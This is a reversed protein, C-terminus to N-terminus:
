SLQGEVKVDRRCNSIQEDKLAYFDYGEAFKFLIDNTTLSESPVGDVTVRNRRLYLLGLRAHLLAFCKTLKRRLNEPIVPLFNEMISNLVHSGPWLSVGVFGCDNLITELGRFSFHFYSEHYPELFAAWGYLVGYNRLVRYVECLAKHPHHLHELVAGMYVASFADTKFPLKHADAVVTLGIHRKIDLGIWM